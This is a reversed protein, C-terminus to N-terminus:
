VGCVGQVRACSELKAHPAVGSKTGVICFQNAPGYIIRLAITPNDSTNFTESAVSFGVAGSGLGQSCIDTRWFSAASNGNTRVAVSQM